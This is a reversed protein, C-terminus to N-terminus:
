GISARLLTEQYVSSAILCPHKPNTHV